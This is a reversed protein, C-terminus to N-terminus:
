CFSSGKAARGEGSKDGGERLPTNYLTMISGILSPPSFLQNNALLTPAFLCDRRGESPSIPYLAFSYSYIYLYIYEYFKRM